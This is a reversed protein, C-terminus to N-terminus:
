VKRLVFMKRVSKGTQLPLRIVQLTSTKRQYAPSEGLYIRKFTTRKNLDEQKAMAEQNEEELCVAGDNEQDQYVADENEEDQYFAEENEEGEYVAEENEEGQYAADENEEEQYAADENEEDQYIADENEERKIEKKVYGEGDVMFTDMHEEIEESQEEDDEGEIKSFREIKM